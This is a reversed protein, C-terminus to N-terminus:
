MSRPQLRGSILKADQGTCNEEGSCNEGLTLRLNESTSSLQLGDLKRRHDGCWM